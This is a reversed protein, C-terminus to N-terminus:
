KRKAKEHNATLDQVEREAKQNVPLSLLRKLVAPNTLNPVWYWTITLLTFASTHRYNTATLDWLRCSVWTTKISPQHQCISRLCDATKISKESNNQVKKNKGWERERESWRTSQTCNPCLSSRDKFISDQQTVKMSRIALSKQHKYSTVVIIM